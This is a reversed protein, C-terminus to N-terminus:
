EEEGNIEIYDFILSKLKEACEHYENYAHSSIYKWKDDAMYPLDGNLSIYGEKGNIIISDSNRHEYVCWTFAKKLSRYDGSVYYGALMFTFGVERCNTFAGINLCVRENFDEDSRLNELVILSNRLGNSLTIM